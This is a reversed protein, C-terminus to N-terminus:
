ILKLAQIQPGTSVHRLSPLRTVLNLLVYADEGVQKIRTKPASSNKGLRASRGSIPAARLSRGVPSRARM